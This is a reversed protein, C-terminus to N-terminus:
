EIALTVGDFFALGGDTPQSQAFISLVFPSTGTASAELRVWKNSFDAEANITDLPATGTQGESTAVVLKAKYQTKVWCSFKVTGSIPQSYTQTIVYYGTNATAQIRLCKDSLLGTAYGITGTGDGTVSWSDPLNNTWNSFIPNKLRLIGVGGNVREGRDAYSSPLLGMASGIASLTWKSTHQEIYRYTAKVVPEPEAVSKGASHAYALASSFLLKGALLQTVTRQEDQGSTNGEITILDGVQFGANSAVDIFTAGSNADQSLTTIGRTKAAFTVKGNAYDVTYDTGENKTTGNVTIVPQPSKLWDSNSDGTTGHVSQYVIYDSTPLIEDTVLYSYASDAAIHELEPLGSERLVNGCAFGVNPGFQSQSKGFVSSYTYDIGDVKTTVDQYSYAGSEDTLHLLSIVGNGWGASVQDRNAGGKVPQIRPRSPLM